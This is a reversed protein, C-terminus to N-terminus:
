AILSRCDIVLDPFMHGDLTAYFKQLCFSAVNAM